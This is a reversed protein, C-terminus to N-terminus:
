RVGLGSHGTLGRQIKFKSRKMGVRKKERKVEDRVKVGQSGNYRGAVGPRGCHRAEGGEEPRQEEGNREECLGEEASRSRSGCLCSGIFLNLVAM